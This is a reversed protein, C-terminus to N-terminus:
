QWSRGRVLNRRRWWAQNCGIMARSYGFGGWSNNTAVINLGMKTRLMTAYNIAAIANAATGTGGPGIFKASIINTTWNVGAGGIGNNASAGIIGAVHTGHADERPDDFVSGDYTLLTLAM